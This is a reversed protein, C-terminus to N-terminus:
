RSNKTFYQTYPSNPTTLVELYIQAVTDSPCQALVKKFLTTANKTQSQEFQHVAKEFLTRTKIKAQKIEEPLEDLLEYVGIAVTKGKAKMKGLYRYEFKSGTALTNIADESIISVINLLKSTTELRAAFNVVDSIVTGELREEEGVTGLMLKGAHIGMALQIPNAQQAILQNYASVKKLLEISCRVADTSGRPFLAMIADGIFKDVFGHHQRIVPAAIHLYDNLYQIAEKPSMRETTSTFYRIDCFLVAMTKEVQDGLKVNLISPLDLLKLFEMPVFRAYSHILNELNTSYQQIENTMNNFVNAFMGIQDDSHIDVRVNFDHHRIRKAANVLLEIPKSLQRSIFASFLISLLISFFIFFYTKNLMTHLFNSSDNVNYDIALAAIVQKKDDFIPAAVTLWTGWKDTVWDGASSPKGLLAEKYASEMKLLTGFPIAPQTLSADYGSDGINVVTPLNSEQPPFVVLYAYEILPIDPGTAEREYYKKHFDPNSRSSERIKRLWQSVAQYESSKHYTDSLLTPLGKDKDNKKYETNLFKNKANSLITQNNKHIINKLAVINKIDRDTFTLVSLSALNRLHVNLDRLLINRSEFYFFFIIVLSLIISQICIVIGIQITFSSMIRHMRDYTKAFLSRVASRNNTKIKTPENNNM